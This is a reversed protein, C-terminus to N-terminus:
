SSSFWRMHLVPLLLDATGMQVNEFAGLGLDPICACHEACRSGCLLFKSTLRKDCLPSSFCVLSLLHCSDFNVFHQETEQPPVPFCEYMCAHLAWLGVGICDLPCTLCCNCELGNLVICGIHRSSTLGVRAFRPEQLSLEVLLHRAGLNVFHQTREQAPVFLCECICAHPLCLGIGICDHPCIVCCNRELGNSVIRGVSEPLCSGQECPFAKEVSAESM